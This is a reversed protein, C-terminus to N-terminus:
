GPLPASVHEHVILWKGDRLEWIATHRADVEMSGGAKPKASLHFTLTTWAVNGRRTIKLDGSPTLKASTVNNIFAPMVGAKYESWGKYKLPAIDFFVLDADKAYFEAANEPKLTNWAAYYREILAKFQAVDNTRSATRKTQGTGTFAALLILTSAMALRLLTANKM